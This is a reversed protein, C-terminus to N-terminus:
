DITAYFADAERMTKDPHEAMRAPGQEGGFLFLRGEHILWNQPDAEFKQGRALAGACLNRYRPAYSEPRARFLSLHRQSIFRFEFGDWVHHFSPDGRRPAGIEFYAVSDYGQIALPTADPHDAAAWGPGGVLVLACLLRVIERRVIDAM